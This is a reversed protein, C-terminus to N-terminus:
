LTEDGREFSITECNDKEDPLSKLFDQYQKAKLQGSALHIDLTRVDFLVYKENEQNASM